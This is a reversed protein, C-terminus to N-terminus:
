TSPMSFGSEWPEPTEGRWMTVAVAKDGNSIQANCSDCCLFPIPIITRESDSLLEVNHDDPKRAVIEKSRSQWGNNIDEQPLPVFGAVGCNICHLRSIMHKEGVHGIIPRTQKSHRVRWTAQAIDQWDCLTEDFEKKDQKKAVRRALRNLIPKEKGTFGNCCECDVGGKGCRKHMIAKIRDMAREFALPTGNGRNM